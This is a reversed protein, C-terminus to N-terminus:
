RPAGDPEADTGEVVASVWLASALSHAAAQAILSHPITGRSIWNARGGPTNTPPLPIWGTGQLRLLNRCHALGTMAPAGPTVLFLWRGTLPVEIVSIPRGPQSLKDLLHQGFHPPVELIDFQHGVLGAIGYPGDSWWERAVDVDRPCMGCVLRDGTASLPLISWRDRVYEVAAALSLQDALPRNPTNSASRQARLPQPRGNREPTGSRM